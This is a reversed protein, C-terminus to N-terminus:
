ATFQEMKARFATDVRDRTAATYWAQEQALSQFEVKTRILEEITKAQVIAHMAETERRHPDGPGTGGAAALATEEARRAREAQKARRKKKSKQAPEQEKKNKKIERGKTRADRRQDASANPDNLTQDTLRASSRVDEGVSTTGDSSTHVERTNRADEDATIVATKEHMDKHMPEMHEFDIPLLHHHAFRMDRTHEMEGPISLANPKPHNADSYDRHVLPRIHYTPPRGDATEHVSTIRYLRSTYRHALSKAHSIGARHQLVAERHRRQAEQQEETAHFRHFTVGAVMAVRVVQAVRLPTTPKTPVLSRPERVRAVAALIERADDAAAANRDYQLMFRMIMAPTSAVATGTQPLSAHPTNNYHEVAARLLNLQRKTSRQLRARGLTSDALCRRKMIDKVTRHSREIDVQEEKSTYVGSTRHVQIGLKYAAIQYANLITRQVDSEMFNKLRFNKIVSGDTDMPRRESALLFETGSDSQIVSTVWPNDTHGGCLVPGDADSHNNNNDTYVAECWTVATTLVAKADNLTSSADYTGIGSRKATLPEIWLYKSFCDIVGVYGYVDGKANAKINKVPAAERYTPWYSMGESRGFFTTDTMWLQCARTLKSRRPVSPPRPIPPHLLQREEKNNLYTRIMPRTIGWYRERVYAEMKLMGMGTQRRKIGGKNYIGDLTQRVDTDRVVKVAPAYGYAVKKTTGDGGAQQEVAVAKVRQRGGAEGKQQRFTRRRYRLQAGKTTRTVFLDASFLRFWPLAESDLVRVVASHVEVTWRVKNAALTYQVSSTTPQTGFASTLVAQTRRADGDDDRRRRERGNGVRVLEAVVAPHARRVDDLTAPTSTATVYARAGTVITVTPEGPNDVTQTRLEFHTGPMRTDNVDDILHEVLRVLRAHMTATTKASTKKSNAGDAGDGGGDGVGDDLAKLRHMTAMRVRLNAPHKPADFVANLLCLLVLNAYTATARGAADRPLGVSSLNPLVRGALRQDTFCAWLVARLYCRKLAKVGVGSTGVDHVVWGDLAQARLRASEAVSPVLDADGAVGAAVSPDVRAVAHNHENRSHVALVGYTAYANLARRHDRDDREQQQEDANVPARRFTCRLKPMGLMRWAKFQDVGAADQALPVGNVATPTDGVRVGAKRLPTYRMVTVRISHAGGALQVRLTHLGETLEYLNMRRAQQYMADGAATNRTSAFYAVVETDDGLNAAVGRPMRAEVGGAGRVTIASVVAGAPIADVNSRAVLLGMSTDEANAVVIARADAWPLRVAAADPSDFVVYAPPTPLQLQLQLQDLRVGDRAAQPPPAAADPLATVKEGDVVLGRVRAHVPVYKSASKVVIWSGRARPQRHLYVSAAKDTMSMGDDDDDDDKLEVDQYRYEDFVAALRPTTESGLWNVKIDTAADVDLTTAPPPAAAAM